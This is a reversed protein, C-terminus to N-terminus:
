VMVAQAASEGSRVVGEMYGMWATATETGAWYLRGVPKRLAPGTDGAGIIAVQTNIAGSLGGNTAALASAAGGSLGGTAIAAGLGGLVGRRTAMVM